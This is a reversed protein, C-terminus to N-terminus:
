KAKPVLLFGHLESIPKGLQLSGVIHGTKNIGYAIQLTKRGSGVDTINNLNAMVGNQWLFGAQGGTSTLSEGVVQGADNIDYASSTGGGLDGLPIMTMIGNVRRSLFAHYLVGPVGDSGIAPEASHGVVEDFNNIAFVEISVHNPALLGLPTVEITSGNFRAIAQSGAMVGSDNIDQPIFDGLDIPGSINGLVDVHWKAGHDTGDSHPASGVIDGVDNLGTPLGSGGGFGPLTLLGKGPVFVYGGVLIIGDDNVARARSDVYGPPAIDTLDLVQGDATVDWVVAHEDRNPAFSFGVVQMLGAADPKNVGSARSQVFSGGTLGGLDTLTYLAASGGGDGPKPPKGAQALMPTLACSLAAVAFLYLHIKRRSRM